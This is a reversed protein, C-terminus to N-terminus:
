DFTATPTTSLASTSFTFKVTFSPLPRVRDQYTAGDGTCSASFTLHTPTRFIARALSPLYGSESSIVSAGGTEPRVTLYIMRGRTCTSFDGSVVQFDLGQVATFAPITQTSTGLVVEAYNDDLGTQEGDGTYTTTWTYVKDVGGGPGAPGQPGAEGRPGPAGSIGSPGTPGQRGPKALAKKVPASLDSTKITGDKIDRSTVLRDAAAGVTGAAGLGFVVAAVTITSRASPMHM